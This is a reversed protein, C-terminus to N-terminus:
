IPGFSALSMQLGVWGTRMAYEFWQVWVPLLMQEGSGKSHGCSMLGTAEARVEMVPKVEPSETVRRRNNGDLWCTTQPRKTWGQVVMKKSMTANLVWASDIPDDV